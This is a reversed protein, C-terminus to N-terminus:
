ATLFFHSSIHPNIRSVFFLNKGSLDEIMLQIRTSGFMLGNNDETINPIYWFLFTIREPEWYL